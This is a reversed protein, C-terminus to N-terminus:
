SLHEDLSAFDSREIAAVQGVDALAHAKQELVRGQEVRHRDAFVDREWHPPMGVPRVLFDALVRLLFEGLHPELVVELLHRAIKGAAHLLAGTQRPRHGEVGRNQEDVLRAGSEIRNHQGLDVLKEHFALSRARRDDDDRM